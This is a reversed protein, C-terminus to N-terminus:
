RELKKLALFVDGLQTECATHANPELAQLFPESLNLSSIIQFVRSCFKRVEARRSQKEPMNTVLEKIVHCLKPLHNKLTKKSAARGSENATVSVLSKLIEIVLDLAEVRRFESKSSCCKDLLFEFLHHGIWPRRRVIEKLFESKMQFKKSDFYTELADQFIDLVRQLESEPFKRAEIIKLIWFTSQQALSTIMKHRSWSASQKKKSPNVVSKKKKFPKSALKLNKELLPELMSLQVSEGKPYDKAKFIKKQLIGWIRQGLQESGETTHPNVFAQALNSYVKLVQPKGPNEHLYIELLSLVRLKFLVLQSHATEGGAQNKREKLIRALYTDMRFMADDDMGGDSDDSGEPIEKDVAEVGVVAESDDTQGDSEGTEGTEAEDSEEAEEIGLLDEDDEDNDESDTDQHRAPKLDKKIVRLMRLLGDDTVDNCFYKFVQEIASRMPASSQPLLSLLTDVLVDM